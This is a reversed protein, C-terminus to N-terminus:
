LDAAPLDAAPIRFLRGTAQLAEITWAGGIGAIMWQLIAWLDRDTRAEDIPELAPVIAHIEVGSPFAEGSRGIFILAYATGSPARLYGPRALGVSDLDFSRVFFNRFEPDHGLRDEALVFALRMSEFSPPPIIAVDNM